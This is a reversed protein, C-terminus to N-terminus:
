KCAKFTARATSRHMEASLGAHLQVQGVQAFAAMICTSACMGSSVTPVQSSCSSTMSCTLQMQLSHKPLAM